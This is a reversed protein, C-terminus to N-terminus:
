IKLNGLLLQLAAIGKCHDQQGQGHKFCLLRFDHKFLPAKSVHQQVLGPIM